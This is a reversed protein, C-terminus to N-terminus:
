VKGELKNEIFMAAEIVTNFKPAKELMTVPRDQRDCVFYGDPHEQITHGKYYIPEPISIVKQNM